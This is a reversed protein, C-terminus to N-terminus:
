PASASPTRGAAWVTICRLGRLSRDTVPRRGSRGGSRGAAASLSGPARHCSLQGGSACLQGGAARAPAPSVMLGVCPTRSPVCAESRPTIGHFDSQVSDQDARNDAQQACQGRQKKRAPATTLQGAYGTAPIASSRRRSQSRVQAM